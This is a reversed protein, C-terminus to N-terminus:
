DNLYSVACATMAAMGYPFAKEDFTVRANHVPLVEGLNGGALTMFAGPVGTLTSYFSFDEAGALPKDMIQVKDGGVANELFPIIQSVLEPDNEVPDYGPPNTVEIRCGSIAEVGNAIRYAYEEIKKKAAVSGARANGCMRVRDSIVNPAVGGEIKNMMFIATDMPDVARAQVQQLMVIIEAAALIPDPVKHPQSGHGGVGQIDFWYEEASMFMAGNKIGITGCVEKESPFIHMGFIADVGNMVGERVLVRAGGPMLDESHQFILKVTGAFQDRMGCLIKANGLMMACHTDHGCAHMVGPVKSAYPM